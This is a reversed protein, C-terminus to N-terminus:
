AGPTWRRWSNILGDTIANSSNVISQVFFFLFVTVLLIVLAKGGNSRLNRQWPRMYLSWLSRFEKHEENALGFVIKERGRPVYLTGFLWDWIAFAAGLNRDWHQPAISHHIQHQAPSIFIRELYPGYSIWVHSHRIHYGLLYYSFWIANLGMFSIAKLESGLFFAALGQMTGIPLAMAIPLTFMEMPHARYDVMPTLVEASHHVKHFEWLFQIRHQLYHHFYFMFDAALASFLTFLIVLLLPHPLNLQYDVNGWWSSLLDQTFAYAVAAGSFALAPQFVFKGIFPFTLLYRLDTLSSRHLYLSKPFCFRIFKLPSYGLFPWRLNFYSNVM